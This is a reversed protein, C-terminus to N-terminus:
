DARGSSLREIRNQIHEIQEPSFRHPKSVYVRKSELDLAIKLEEAAQRAIAADNTIAALAERMAALELRRPPSTPYADVFAVLHEVARRVDAADQGLQYRRYRLNGLLNHTGADDRDRKRIENALAIAEDVEAVSAARAGLQAALETPATADLAYANKGAFYAAYSPSMRYAGWTKHSGATSRASRLATALKAAPGVFLAGYGILVAVTVVALALGMRRRGSRVTSEHSHDAANRDQSIGRTGLAVAVLAFFTTAAGANFMALDIGTHLLFAILGACLAPLLPGLTDDAIGDSLNREIALGAFAVFWAVVAVSLTLQVYGVNAGAILAFWWLFVVAGLGAAWLIISGTPFASSAPDVRGAREAPDSCNSDGPGNASDDGVDLSRTRCLRIGIGVLLLVGGALGLLGWEAALRVPWSHPETVEEPCEVIKYRTFHRGFNGSGVGLYDSADIMRCASQWYMSRFQLSRGFRAPDARLAVIFLGAGVIATMGLGALVTMPRRAIARAMTQAAIWVVLGVACAAMAGKSQTAGLAVVAGVAILAPPALTWLPRREGRRAVIVAVAALVFLILQSGLVNAHGSYGTLSRSKLRQEFDHRQGRARASEPQAMATEAKQEEYFAITNPIEKWYQFACKTIVVGGTALVVTLALRIQWPRHLLQRLTLLYLVFGLYDLIGIMALHKQGAQSASIVGAILLLAAGLEAGTRVYRRGGRLLRAVGVAAAVAAILGIIALTTAPQAQPPAELHRVM